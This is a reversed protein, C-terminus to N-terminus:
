VNLLGEIESTIKKIEYQAKSNDSELATLGRPMTSSYAKRDHVATPLINAFSESLYERADEEDTSWAHTPVRNLLVAIKLNPNFDALPELIEIMEVTADVDPQSPQCPLIMIDAVQGASRSEKSDKGPLDVLVVDYKAGLDKLYDRLDGTQRMVTVSKHGEERRDSSWNSITRVSPDAEIVIVEKGQNQFSVALNATITSKGVGGKKHSVAVIM